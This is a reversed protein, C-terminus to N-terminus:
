KARFEDHCSKCASGVDSVQKKFSGMDGSRAAAPLKGAEAVMKDMKRDFEARKTWIEPKAKTDKDTGEGFNERPITSVMAIIDAYRQAEEPNFPKKEEAMAGLHSMSLNMVEYAGRRYKIQSEPKVQQAAAAVVACAFLAIAVKKM